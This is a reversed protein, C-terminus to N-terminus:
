ASTGVQIYDLRTDGGITRALFRAQDLVLPRTLNGAFDEASLERFM